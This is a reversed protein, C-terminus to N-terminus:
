GHPHGALPAPAPPTSTADRLFRSRCACCCCSPSVDMHQRQQEAQVVRPRGQGARARARGGSVTVIVGPLAAVLWQLYFFLPLKADEPARVEMRPDDRGNDHTSRPLPLPLSSCSPKTLLRATRPLQNPGLASRSLLCCHLRWDNLFLQPLVCAAGRGCTHTARM